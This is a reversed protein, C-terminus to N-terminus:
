KKLQALYKLVLGLAGIYYAVLLLFGTPDLSMMNSILFLPFVYYLMDQLYTLILASSFSGAKLAKYLGLLFSLGMLGLVVWMSYLMWGTLTLTM